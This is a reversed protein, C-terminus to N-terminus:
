PTASPPSWRVSSPAPGLRQTWSSCEHDRKRPVTRGMQPSKRRMPLATPKLGFRDRLLLFDVSRVIYSVVPEPTYYVGRMERLEYDYAALFDEYFHVM